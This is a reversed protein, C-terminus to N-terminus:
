KLLSFIKTFVQHYYDIVQILINKINSEKIKFHIKILNDLLHPMNYGGFIVSKHKRLGQSLLNGMTHDYDELEIVGEKVDSLEKDSIDNKLKDLHKLINQIGFKIIDYEEIQGRSEIYFNYNDDNNRTFYLVSVPSYLADMSETGLETIASFKIVQGEQLKIIPINTKYPSGIEKEKYYFKCDDTGVTVINNTKNTYDLYMTLQKLNTQNLEYENKLNIDDMNMINEIYNDEEIDNEPSKYFPIDSQIGIVPINRIRLKIYNNNFISTNETFDFKNYIYMPIDSLIVRRITNAIIHDIDVGNLNLELRSNFPTKDYSLEKFNIPAVKEM